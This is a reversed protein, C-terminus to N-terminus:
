ARRRGEDKDFLDRRETCAFNRDSYVTYSVTDILPATVADDSVFFDVRKLNKFRWDVDAKLQQANTQLLAVEFGLNQSVALQTAKDDAYGM